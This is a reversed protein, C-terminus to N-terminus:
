SLRIGGTGQDGLLSCRRAISYGCGRPHATRDQSSCYVMWQRFSEMIKEIEADIDHNKM